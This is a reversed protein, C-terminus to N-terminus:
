ATISGLNILEIGFKLGKELEKAMEEATMDSKKVTEIQEKITKENKEQQIFQKQTEKELCSIM